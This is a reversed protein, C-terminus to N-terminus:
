GSVRVMKFSGMAKSETSVAEHYEARPSRKRGVRPHVGPVTEGVRARRSHGVERIEVPAQGLAVQRIERQIGWLERTGSFNSRKGMLQRRSLARREGMEMSAEMRKVWSSAQLTCLPPGHPSVLTLAMYPMLFYALIPRGELNGGGSIGLVTASNGLSYSEETDESHMGQERM